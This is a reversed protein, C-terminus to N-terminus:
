MATIKKGKISNEYFKFSYESPSRKKKEAEKKKKKQLMWIKNLAQHECAVCKSLLTCFMLLQM